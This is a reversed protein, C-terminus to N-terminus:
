QESAMVRVTLQISSLLLCCRTPAAEMKWQGRTHHGIGHQSSVTRDARLFAAAPWEVCWVLWSDLLVVQGDSPNRSVSDLRAAVSVNYESVRSGVDTVGSWECQWELM